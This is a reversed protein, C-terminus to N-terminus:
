RSTDDACPVEGEIRELARHLDEARRIAFESVARCAVAAVVLALWWWPTEITPLFFLSAATFSGATMIVRNVNRRWNRLRKLALLQERRAGTQGVDIAFISQYELARYNYVFINASGWVIEGHVIAGVGLAGALSACGNVVCTTKSMTWVATSDLEDVVAVPDVRQGAAIWFAILAALCLLSGVLVYRRRLESARRREAESITLDLFPHAEMFERNRTDANSLVLIGAVLCGILMLASLAHSGSFDMSVVSKTLVEVIKDLGAAIVKSDATALPPLLNAFSSAAFGVLIVAVGVPVEISRRKRHAFYSLPDQTALLNHEALAEDEVDRRERLGM